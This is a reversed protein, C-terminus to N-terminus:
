ITDRVNVPLKKPSVINFNTAILYNKEGKRIINLRGNGWEIIAADGTEDAILNHGDAFLPTFIKRDTRHSRGSNQM